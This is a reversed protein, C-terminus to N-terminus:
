FSVNFFLSQPLELKLNSSKKEPENSITGNINLSESTTEHYGYFSSETSLFLRDSIKFEFRLVPGLGVGLTKEDSTFTNSSSNFSEVVSNEKKYGALVDFGYSFLFKKSLLMHKELGFRTDITLINLKRNIFNGNSFDDESTNTVNINYASRFSAKGFHRRYTIGYPSKANNPNLSLLNGLVNTVNIGIENKYPYFSKLDNKQGYVQLLVVSCVFSFLYKM